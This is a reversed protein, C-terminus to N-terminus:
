YVQEHTRKALFKERVWKSRRLLLAVAATLALLLVFAALTRPKGFADGLVTFTITAPLLGIFSALAYQRYAVGTMGSMYNVVDFPFFLLRMVLVTMFGESTMLDDYKRVWGQEHERVYKRGMFRGLLFAFGASINEGVVNILTGWLPGYLSGSVLILATTPFLLLPRAVYLALLLVPGWAGYSVVILRVERPLKHLPIGSRHFSWYAVVFLLLWAGAIVIKFVGMGRKTLM